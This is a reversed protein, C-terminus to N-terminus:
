EAIREVTSVDGNADPNDEQQEAGGALAGKVTTDSFDAGFRMGSVALSVTGGQKPNTVKSTAQGTTYELGRVAAASVASDCATATCASASANIQAEKVQFVIRLDGAQATATGDTTTAASGASAGHSDVNVMFDVIGADAGTYFTGTTGSAVYRRCFCNSQPLSIAVTVDSQLTVSSKAGSAPTACLPLPAASNWGGAGLFESADTGTGLPSVYYVSKDSGAGDTGGHITFDRCVANAPPTSTPNPSSDPTPTGGAPDSSSGGGACATAALTALVLISRSVTSTKM